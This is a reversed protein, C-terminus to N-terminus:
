KYIESYEQWFPYVLQVYWRATPNDFDEISLDVDPGQWELASGIGANYAAFAYIPDNVKASNEAFLWNGFRINL